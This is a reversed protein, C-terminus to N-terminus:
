PWMGKTKTEYKNGVTIQTKYHGYLAAKVLLAATALQPTRIKASKDHAESAM